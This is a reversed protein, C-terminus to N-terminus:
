NQALFYVEPVTKFSENRLQCLSRTSAIDFLNSENSDLIALPFAAAASAAAFFSPSYFHHICKPIKPTANLM